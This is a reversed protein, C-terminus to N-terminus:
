GPSTAQLSWVTTRQSLLCQVSISFQPGSRTQAISSPRTGRQIGGMPMAAEVRAVTTTPAAAEAFAQASYLPITCFSNTNAVKGPVGVIEVAQFTNIVVLLLAEYGKRSRMEFLVYCHIPYESSRDHKRKYQM